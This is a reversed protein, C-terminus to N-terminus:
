AKLAEEEGPAYKGMLSDIDIRIIAVRNIMSDPAPRPCLSKYRVTIADLATRKEEKDEVIIATGTGCVSRFTTTAKERIIRVDAYASFGARPNKRILDMKKGTFATHIYLADGLLVLNVPFAYPAGDGDNLAVVMDDADNLRNAVTEPQVASLVVHDSDTIIVARTRRGYTADILSGRDRAEQIIRKIPASEPSVIAILRNASVMNGFGINILKM